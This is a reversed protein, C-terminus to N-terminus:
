SRHPTVLVLLKPKDGHCRFRQGGRGRRWVSLRRAPRCRVPHWWQVVDMAAFSFAAQCRCTAAVVPAAACACRPRKDSCNSGARWKGLINSISSSFEAFFISQNEFFLTRGFQTRVSLPGAVRRGGGGLGRRRTLRVHRSPHQSLLFSMFSKQRAFQGNRKCSAQPINGFQASCDHSNLQPM